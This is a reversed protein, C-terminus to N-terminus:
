PRAPPRHPPSGPPRTSPATSRPKPWMPSVCTTTALTVGYDPSHKPWTWAAREAIVGKAQEIVVRSELAGTLQENVRQSELMARHQIIGITALDALAQAVVVDADDM